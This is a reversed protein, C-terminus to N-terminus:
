SNKGLTKPLLTRLHFPRPLSRPVPDYGGKCFPHCRLLRYAALVSGALAGHRVVAEYAYHSCTPQFRCSPPFYPSITYQYVRIFFLILPRMTIHRIGPRFAVGPRSPPVLGPRRTASARLCPELTPRCTKAKHDFTEALADFFRFSNMALSSSM